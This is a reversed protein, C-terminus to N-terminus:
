RVEETSSRGPSWSVPFDLTTCFAERGDAGTSSLVPYIDSECNKDHNKGGLIVSRPVCHRSPLSPTTKMESGGEM